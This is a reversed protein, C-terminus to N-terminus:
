RYIKITKIEFPRFSLPISGNQVDLTEREDELMNTNVAKSVSSSLDICCKTKTGECEYARLVYADSGDEAPKVTEIIINPASASAFSPLSCAGKVAYAPVNLEYAPKVVSEASFGCNHVLLSYTM